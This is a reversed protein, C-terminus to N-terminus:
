ILEKKYLIAMVIAPLGALVFIMCCLVIIDQELM